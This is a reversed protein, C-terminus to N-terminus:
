DEMKEEEQETLEYVKKEYRKVQADTKETIAGCFKLSWRYFKQEEELLKVLRENEAYCEEGARTEWLRDYRNACIEEHADLDESYAKEAADLRGKYEDRWTEAIELDSELVEIKILAKSLLLENVLAGEETDPAAFGILLGVVLM